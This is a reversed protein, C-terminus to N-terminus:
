TDERRLKEVVGLPLHVNPVVGWELVADAPSSVEVPCVRRDVYFIRLKGVVAGVDTVDFVRRVNDDVGSVNPEM